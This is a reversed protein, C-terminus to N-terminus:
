TGDEDKSGIKADQNDYLSSIIGGAIGRICTSVEGSSHEIVTQADAIALSVDRDFPIKGLLPIEHAGLYEEIGATMDPNLDHKNIVVGKRLGFHDALGLVRELDHIGSLTPETVIVALDAGAISAIVPCGIGPPGDILVVKRGQSIAENRAERRVISVLKGSNEEAVGLSAHVMTGFRTDSVFWKGGHTDALSIAGAPCMWECVGCGECALRDIEYRGGASGGGSGAAAPAEVRGVAQFRCVEFCKGCATCRDTDISAVKAAVFDETKRVSPKLLLHLDPADVDCDAVVKDDFLAALSSALVTKGTGGKGSIVTVELPKTM